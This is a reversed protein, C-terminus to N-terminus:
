NTGTDDRKREQLKILASKIVDNTMGEIAKMSSSGFTEKLFEICDKKGQDTRANFKLSLEDKLEEILIDRQKMRHSVSKDENQIMEVSTDTLNVNNVEGGINLMKIYPFFDDFTPMDFHKGKIVDFKDKIVWARNIFESGQKNKDTRIQEMEILLAPEYGLDGEVKMKTGTKTLEKDGEDDEEFAWEFGARGCMIIHLPYNLFIDPFPSWEQKLPGIHKLGLRTIGKKLMYAKMIEQWYHTVSDVIVISDKPIERLFAILSSFARTRIGGFKIGEKNILPRIYQSGNETDAMHIPHPSKIYKHLGIAIEAATRTKGSGAFGFAGAKLHTPSDNFEQYLAM